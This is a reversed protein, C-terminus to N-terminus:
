CAEIMALSIEEKFNHTSEEEPSAIWVNVFWEQNFINFIVM